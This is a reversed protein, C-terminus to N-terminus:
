GFTLVSLGQKAISEAANRIDETSVSRIHEIIEHAPTVFGKFLTSKGAALAAQENNESAVAMQGLYQKKAANLARESMQKSALRNFIETVIKRCPATHEPDCGFYVTLEGCDSFLSTSSDVSYVYGHRERLEINLLSNMCPGGIINNLLAFTHKENAFMGPIRAGMLTHCQHSGIHNYKDFPELIAPPLLTHKITPRDLKEFFKGVVSAVREASSPGLYFFVMNQPTYYKELFQRCIQSTFTPITETNGLINHGLSSGSFMLDNFSDFVAESPSDLYSAIEDLVVEREREIQREPFESNAVLDHMLEVARTLGGKPFVSYLMTTEESTYANLEGGISEMRNIIHWSHRRKTGKFITHEVFHALGYTRPNENRSGVQVALGCYEVNGRNQCHVTRLGNALTGYTYKYKNTM